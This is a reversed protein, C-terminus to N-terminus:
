LDANSSADAWDGVEINASLDVSTTIEEGPNTIEATNSGLRNISKVTVYYYKNREVMFTESVPASVAAPNTLYVSYYVKGGEYKLIGVNAPVAPNAPNAADFLATEALVTAALPSAAYYKNSIERLVKTASAPADDFEVIRYFDGGTLFGNGQGLVANDDGHVDTTVDLVWVGGIQTFTATGYLPESNANEMAYLPKTGDADTSTAFHQPTAPFGPTSPNLTGGEIFFDSAALPPTPGAAWKNYNYSELQLGNYVAQNFTNDKINRVLYTVNTLTGGLSAEYVVSAAPFELNAKSFARGIKMSVSNSAGPNLTQQKGGEPATMFFGTGSSATPVAITSMSTVSTAGNALLKEFAAKNLAAPDGPTIAPAVLQAALAAPANAVIFFTKPGTTITVGSASAQGGAVTMNQVVELVGAGDFIYTDATVIVAEDGTPTPTFAYTGIAGAQKAIINMTTPEGRMGDGLGGGTTSDDNSCSSMGMTLAAALLMAYKFNAKM